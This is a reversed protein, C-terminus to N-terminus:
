NIIGKTDTEMQVPKVKSEPAPVGNEIGPVSADQMNVDTGSASSDPKAEDTDMKLSEKLAEKVPVEVEEEEIIQLLLLHM